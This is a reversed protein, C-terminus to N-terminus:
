ISTSANLDTGRKVTFGIPQLKDQGTAEYRTRVQYSGRPRILWPQRLEYIPVESGDFSEAWRWDMVEECWPDNYTLQVTVCKPDTVPDLFGLIIHSLHPLSSILMDCTNAAPYLRATAVSTRNVVWTSSPNTGPFGGASGTDRLEFPNITLEDGRALAGKYGANTHQNVLRVGDWVFSCGRAIIDSIFPHRLRKSIIEMEDLFISFDARSPNLAEYPVGGIVVKNPNPVVIGNWYKELEDRVSLEPVYGNAM